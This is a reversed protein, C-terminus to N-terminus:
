KKWFVFSPYHRGFQWAVIQSLLTTVKSGCLFRMTASRPFHGPDVVVGRADVLCWQQIMQQRQQELSRRLASRQANLEELTLAHKHAAIKDPINM